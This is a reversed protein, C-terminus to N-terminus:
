TRKYFGSSKDLPTSKCYEIFEKTLDSQIIKNLNSFLRKIDIILSRSANAHATAYGVFEDKYKINYTWEKTIHELKFYIDNGFRKDLFSLLTKYNFKIDTLGPEQKYVFVVNKLDSKKISDIIHGIQFYQKKLNLEQTQYFVIEEMTFDNMYDITNYVILKGKYKVIGLGFKESIRFIYFIFDNPNNFAILINGKKIDKWSLTEEKSESFVYDYQETLSINKEKCYKLFEKSYSIENELLSVYPKLM